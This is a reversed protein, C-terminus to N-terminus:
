GRRPVDRADGLRKGVFGPCRKIRKAFLHIRNQLLPIHAEGHAALWCENGDVIEFGALPVGVSDARGFAFLGVLQDAAQAVTECRTAEQM